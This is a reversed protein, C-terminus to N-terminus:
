INFRFLRDDWIRVEKWDINQNQNIINFQKDFHLMTTKGRYNPDYTDIIYESGNSFELNYAIVSHGVPVPDSSLKYYEGWLCLIIAPLNNLCQKVGKITSHNSGSSEKITNKFRELITSAGYQILCIPIWCHDISINCASIDNLLYYLSLYSMGFCVGGQEESFIHAKLAGPSIPRFITDFLVLSEKIASLIPLNDIFQEVFGRSRISDVITRVKQINNPLVLEAKQLADKSNIYECAETNSFSFGNIKPNFNFKPM